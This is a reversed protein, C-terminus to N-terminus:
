GALPHDDQWLIILATEPLAAGKSRAAASRLRLVNVLNLSGVGAILQQLFSRRQVM